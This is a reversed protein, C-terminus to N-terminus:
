GTNLLVDKAENIKSALYTSGGRDPHLKLMLEKHARRVEDATAGPKLGLIGLAEAKSMRGDPGSMEQEGRAMDDRWTPHMRDLYAEILQASAPDDVKVDQWLLALEAPKLKEIRRGAFIGKVVRGQIEGTDHDLQMELYDTTVESMQGLSKQVPSLSSSTILWVGLAVLPLAFATGGRLMLAGALIIVLGGAAIRIHNALRAGGAGGLGHVVLVVLALLAMGLLLFQM